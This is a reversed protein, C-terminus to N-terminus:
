EVILIICPGVFMLNVKFVTLVTADTVGVFLKLEAISYNLPNFCQVALEKLLIM